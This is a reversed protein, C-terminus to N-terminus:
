FLGEFPLVNIVTVSLQKLLSVDPERNTRQLKGKLKGFWVLRKNSKELKVLYSNEPRTLKEFIGSVKRALSDSDIMISIETNMYRSRPTLNVSGVYVYRDDIVMAKAHLRTKPKQKYWTINARKKTLADPRFEYLKVGNKLLRRRYRQYGGHSIAVDNAAFSNTIVSLEVSKKNLNKIWRMGFSQPIFYPTFIKINSNAKAMHTTMKYELFNGSKKRIGKVKSPPDYLVKYNAWTFYKSPHNFIRAIPKKRLLKGYGSQFLKQKNRKLKRRTQNISDYLVSNKTYIMTNTNGVSWKSNWYTDFSQSIKKVVSGITLVDLDQYLYSKKAMYYADGINRGGVIAVRNDAVFVKNHMRRNIKRFRVVMAVPRLVKVRSMKNFLRVDINPHADLVRILANGGHAMFDDLLIRVKVGRDGAKLLHWAILKGTRDNHFSWYQLDLSTDAQKSLYIITALADIGNELM